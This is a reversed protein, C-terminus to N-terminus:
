KDLQDLLFVLSTMAAGGLELERKSVKEFNDDETHHIDFYRQSDPELGMLLRAKGRLPSIDSGSGGPGVKLNYVALYKGIQTLLDMEKPADEYSLGLPTFGGADSEIAAFHSIGSTSDAAYALGGALGNEENMFMVARITHRPKFGLKKYTRLVEISQVCGAGDDHAGEGVDWSDLHGGVTIVENPKITGRLEGIVNYSLKQKLMRASNLMFIKLNSETKLINSLQDADNTSIAFAPISPKNGDTKTAGTHPINDFNVTMSRVLVGLAGKKQALLPGQSRQDVAQGYAKFTRLHEPNMPRNFFVFKNRVESDSLNELEKLSKVEVVQALIGESGTGTTNGLALCKLDITGWKQSNVVRVLEKEGRDWHPVLCPQLWVSDLGLTDLISRTYEVAAAAAPTGSLRNGVRKCLYRLWDYSQANTLSHTYIKQLNKQVTSDLVQASAIFHCSFFLLILSQKM